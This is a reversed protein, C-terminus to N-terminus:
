MKHLVLYLGARFSAITNITESLFLVCVCMGATTYQPCEKLGARICRYLAAAVYQFGASNPYFYEMKKEKRLANIDPITYDVNTDCVRDVMKGTKTETKLMVEIATPCQSYPGIKIYGKTGLVKLGSDDSVSNEYRGFNM